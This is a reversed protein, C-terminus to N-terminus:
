HFWRRALRAGLVNRLLRLLAARDPVGPMYHRELADALARCAAARYETPPYQCAAFELAGGPTLTLRRADTLAARLDDASVSALACVRLLVRADQLDRYAVAYDARYIAAPAGQYDRWDFGPRADIFARLATLITENTM